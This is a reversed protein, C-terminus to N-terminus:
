DKVVWVGSAVKCFTKNAGRYGAITVTASASNSNGEYIVDGSGPDVVVSLAAQPNSSTRQFLTVFGGVNLGNTNPLQTTITTPTGVSAAPEPLIEFYNTETGVVANQIQTNTADVIYTAQTLSYELRSTVHATSLTSEKIMDNLNWDGAVHLKTSPNTIGIGVKGDSSVNLNGANLSSNTGMSLYGGDSNIFQTSSPDKIRLSAINDGSELLLLSNTSAHKIHVFESPNTLGIGVKGDQTIAMRDDLTTTSNDVTSFILDTGRAAAGFDQTAQGRIQAGIEFSDGDSGRFALLGLYDGNAVTTHSGATSNASKNLFIKATKDDTASYAYIGLQTSSNDDGAVTLLDSPSTTNIAFLGDGDILARTTGNTGFTMAGNERNKFNIDASDQIIEFGDSGGEGTNGNSMKFYTTSAGHIHLLRDPATTGLGLRGGSTLIMLDTTNDKFQIDGDAEFEMSAHSGSRITIPAATGQDNYINFEGDYSVTMNANADLYLNEASALTVHRTAYLYADKQYNTGTPKIRFFETSTAAGSIHTMAGDTTSGTAHRFRTYRGETNWIDVYSDGTTGLMLGASGFISSYTDNGPVSNTPKIMVERTGDYGRISGGSVDLLQAPATTGIGVNGGTDNLLVDATARIYLDNSNRFLKTDSDGLYLTSQVNADGNVDLKYNPGNTGIGLRQTSGKFTAYETGGRYNYIKIDGGTQDAEDPEFSIADASNFHFNDGAYLYFSGTTAIKANNTGTTEYLLKSGGFSSSSNFQIEKNSGGPTGGGGAISGNNTLAIDNGDDDTYYLNAPDDNKVWLKGFTDTHNPASSREKIEITPDSGHLGVLGDDHVTFLWNQSSDVVKFLYTGASGGLDAQVNGKSDLRINKGGTDTKLTLHGEKAQLQTDGDNAVTMDTYYTTDYSWRQQTSTNLLDLPANPATTGIGVDGDSKVVLRKNAFGNTSIFVDNDGETVLGLYGDNKARIGLSSEYTMDYDYFKFDRTGGTRIVFKKDPSDTGIGVRQSSDVTLGTTGSTMLILTDAGSRDLGTDDDGYFGYTATSSDPYLDISPAGTANSAFLTSSNLHIRPQSAAYFDMRNGYRYLGLTSDAGLFLKSYSGDNAMRVTEYGGVFFRMTELAHNYGIHGIANSSTDGFLLRGEHADDGVDILIGKDNASTLVHLNGNTYTLNAIGEITNAGTWIALQNDVPTGSKSVDGAAAVATTVYATSAAKTSNDSSTMTGVVPTTNFTALGAESMDFSLATVQGTDNDVGTINLDKDTGKAQLWVNDNTDMYVSFKNGGAKSFKVDGGAADLTIDDAVDLLFDGSSVDYENDSITTYSSSGATISGKVDLKTAPGTTGIGVNGGGAIAVRNTGAEQISLKGAGHGSGSATSQFKWNTGGAATADIKLSAGASHDGEIKVVEHDNGSVHLPMSPNTIGIGVNGATAGSGKVMLATNAENDNYFLRIDSETKSALAIYNDGQDTRLAGTVDEAANTFGIPWGSDSSLQVSFVDSFSQPNTLGIGVHGLSDMHLKQVGDIFFKMDNKANLEINGNSESNRILLNDGSEEIYRLSDGFKLKSGTAITMDTGDFTLKASGTISSSGDFYTMQGSSGGGTIESTGPANTYVEEDGWYLGSGSAWLSKYGPASTTSGSLFSLAGRLTMETKPSSTGVGFKQGSTRIYWNRNDNGLHMHYSSIIHDTQFDLTSDSAELRMIYANTSENKFRAVFGTGADYADIKYSPNTTGIGLNGAADIRVRESGSTFFSTIGHDYTTANKQTQGVKFESLGVNPTANKIYELSVAYNWNHSYGLTLKPNGSNGMVWLNGQGYGLLQVNTGDLEIGDEFRAAYGNSGEVVHLKRSPTVTGIGINGTASIRMRETGSTAFKLPIDGTGWVYNEDTNNNHGIQFVQSSQNYVELGSATSDAQTNKLQLSANGAQTSTLVLKESSSDYTMASTGSLTASVGSNKYYPLQWQSSSAVIGSGGGGGGGSGSLASLDATWSKSGSNTTGTLINDDGLTGTATYYNPSQANIAKKGHPLIKRSYPM